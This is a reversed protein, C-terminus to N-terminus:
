KRGQEEIRQRVWRSEAENLPGPPAHSYDVSLDYAGKRYAREVIGQLDLPADADPPRLPVPVVPLPQQLHMPWVKGKPRLAPWAVHVLYHSAPLRERSVTPLGARLLDIEVWAASSRLIERRKALFSDRGRAGPSKNTPSLVELVTVLSGSAAERVELYTEEIEEELLTTIEVPEITPSPFSLPPAQELGATQGPRVDPILVSRGPDTEDSLYVRLEVRAFYRPRLQANLTEQIESILRHHVDPWLAPDELYPDMGPFLYTM